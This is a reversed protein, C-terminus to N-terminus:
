TRWRNLARDKTLKMTTVFVPLVKHAVARTRTAQVNRSIRTLRHLIWPLAQLLRLHTGAVQQQIEKIFSHLRFIYVSWFSWARFPMGISSACDIDTGILIWQTLWPGTSPVADDGQRIRRGVEDRCIIQIISIKQRGSTQARCTIYLEISMTLGISLRDRWLGWRHGYHHCISPGIASFLHGLWYAWERCDLSQAWSAIWLLNLISFNHIFRTPLMTLEKHRM